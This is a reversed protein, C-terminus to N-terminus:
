AEVVAADVHRLQVAPVNEREVADTQVAHAGPRNELCPAAVSHRSHLAPLQDDSVPAVFQMAHRAPVKESALPDTVFLVHWTQGFPVYEAAIPALEYRAQAQHGSPFNAGVPDLTQETQSALVNLECCDPDHM